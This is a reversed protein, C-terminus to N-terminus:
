FIKKIEYVIKNGIIYKIIIKCYTWYYLIKHQLLFEKKNVINFVEKHVKLHNSDSLGDPIVKSIINNIYKFTCKELYAAYILNFDAAIKYKLDYKNQKHYSNRIFCSQHSFIMGMHLLKIDKAKIEKQFGGYDVQVDGYIIDINQFVNKVFIKDLMDFVFFIDGANMFNIWEGSATDIGKNMADYIGNDKESVWYDIAYEYKKIIELTSDTSGGDIIIYEVNDYTQNIISQITEEIYKEGNYVVTVISILPKNEYSKKFYDKTRLGGEGRRNEGEPLFLKDEFNNVIEPKEKTIVRTTSYKKDLCITNTM